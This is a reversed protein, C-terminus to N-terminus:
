INSKLSFLECFSIGTLKSSYILTLPIMIIDITLLGAVVAVISYNLTALFYSVALGLITVLLLYPGMKIHNNTANLTMRSTSWITDTLMLLTLIAMLGISCEIRGKTWIDYIWDGFLLLFIGMVIAFFVSWKFAKLTIKKVREYNNNAYAVTFEPWIANHFNTIVSRSFNTLTRTTNFLVVTQPGFFLNIIITMGQTNLSQSLPLSMFSMSPVVLSKFLPWNLYSLRFRYNFLRRTTDVKMFIYLGISPIVFFISTILIPIDLLLCMVLFLCELIRSINVAMIGRSANSTARYISNYVAGMMGMFIKLVFLITIISAEKRNLVNLGFISTIDALSTIVILALICTSFVGILLISSNSLLAKCERYKKEAYSISFQNVTVTTLGIDTVSFFATIASLVIWDSYLENGWCIIYFPVLVIQAFLQIGVGFFTSFINKGIKSNLIKRLREM